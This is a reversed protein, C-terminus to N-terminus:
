ASESMLQHFQTGPVGLSAYDGEEVVRGSSLVVLKDFGEALSARQLVWILSRGAFEEFLREAIRAETRSDFSATADDLVLLQPRKLIARALSAKQRQATTLRSGGIGIPQDLGIERTVDGLDLKDVVERILGGIIASSRARGYALRGFLINDQISIAPNYVEPDFFHVPPPGADFGEAFAKRAALIRAQSDDDILGLRHRAPALRFPLGLLRRHDADDLADNSLSSVRTLLLKFEPLDDADIFSFQEFLESGPEVDAFLDVMLEAVQRGIDIFDDMLGTEQLVKRVYPNEALVDPAFSRDRPTGFLLNDAVTMNTNFADRDFLEVLPAIEPDTLRSRLERRAALVREALEPSAEPDIYGQLGLEFVDREMDVLQLVELTRSTLAAEDSVGAARYDIWDAALDLDSNGAARADVELKDQAAREDPEYEHARFPWRQLGYYLNERLTGARLAPEQGVYGIRNARATASASLLDVDGILVSGSSPARLGGLVGALQERGGGGEGFVATTGPIDMAVSTTDPFPPEGESSDALNVNAFRLPGTLPMADPDPEKREEAPMLEEIVFTEYLLEYKIRADEKIQYFNLLEKWPSSLDKYAALVAVLAGFSLDHDPSIVLYGGISYFFFPTVQAIFNNLFKILFKQLYIQYRVYYIEGIRKTYDALEFERTNNVHVERIGGVVEGIRESLKRVKVVREKKLVNLRRQLKPILYAQLPYLAIAALGLIPDQVFMFILITLLTGGQFAPLAVSDGIFGGLPETEATVMSVIEGQSVRRFRGVPFRLVHDYLQYRLRRLMREGVVGRYVNICYKFAGNILVLGLFLFSLALLYPVQEFEFGLLAQPFDTGGIAENIITKPLDLSMYLFPFAVLTLLLLQVQERASYKIIFRFITSEMLQERAPPASPLMGDSHIPRVPSPM